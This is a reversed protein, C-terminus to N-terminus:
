CQRNSCTEKVPKVGAGNKGEVFWPVPNLVAKSEAVKTEARLSVALRNTVIRPYLFQWSVLRSGLKM